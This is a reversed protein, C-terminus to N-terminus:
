KKVLLDFFSIFIIGKSYREQRNLVSDLVNLISSLEGACVVCICLHAVRERPTQSVGLECRQASRQRKEQTSATLLRSDRARDVAVFNIATFYLVQVM